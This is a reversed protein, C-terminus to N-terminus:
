AIPMPLPGVSAEYAAAARILTTEEFHRGVLQLSAPIGDSRLGCPLSITPSGSFNFPSTFRSLKAWVELTSPDLVSLGAPARAGVTPCAFADITEFLRDLEGAFRLRLLHTRAYEDPGTARGLELFMRLAAGYDDAQAPFFEAHGVLMEASCTVIWRGTLDEAGAPLVVDVIKAGLRGLVGLADEFRACIEADLGDLTGRDVGVRLGAIAGPQARAAGTYDGLPALTSTADDDDRGAITQLVCAADAVTRCMPGVHDLSAAMPFVGTVPVRGYTPKIGVLGNMASPLPRGGDGRGLREVIRRDV